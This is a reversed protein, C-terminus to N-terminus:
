ELSARLTEQRPRRPEEWQLGSSHKMLRLPGVASNQPTGARMDAPNKCYKRTMLVLREAISVKLSRARSEDVEM